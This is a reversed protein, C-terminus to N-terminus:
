QRPMAQEGYDIPLCNHMVIVRGESLVGFRMTSTPSLRTHEHLGDIFVLDFQERNDAVFEDSTMRHTGGCVPDMGVKHACAVVLFSADAACGIELYSQAGIQNILRELGM